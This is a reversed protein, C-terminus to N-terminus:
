HCIGPTLLLIKFRKPFNSNFTYSDFSLPFISCVYPRKRRNFIVLFGVCLIYLLSLFVGLLLWLFLLSKSGASVVNNYHMSYLLFGLMWTMLTESLSSSYPIFSFFINSSNFASINTFEIFPKFRWVGPISHSGFINIGLWM